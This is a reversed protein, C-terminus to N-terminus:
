HKQNGPDGRKQRGDEFQGIRHNHHVWTWGVPSDLAHLIILPIQGPKRPMVAGSFLACVKTKEYIQIRRNGTAMRM